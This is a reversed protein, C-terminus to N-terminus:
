SRRMRSATELTLWGLLRSPVCMQRTPITQKIAQGATAVCVQAHRDGLLAQIKQALDKM